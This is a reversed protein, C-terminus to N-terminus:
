CHEDGNAALGLWTIWHTSYYVQADLILSAEVSPHGKRSQLLVMCLENFCIQADGLNLLTLVYRYQFINRLADHKSYQM